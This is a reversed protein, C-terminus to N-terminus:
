GVLKPQTNLEGVLNEILQLTQFYTTIRDIDILGDTIKPMEFIEGEFALSLYIKQGTIFLQLEKNYCEKLKLLTKIVKYNIVKDFENGMNTTCEFTTNFEENTTVAFDFNQKSTQSKINRLGNFTLSDLSFIFIEGHFAESLEATFFLGQFITYWDRREDKEKVYKTHINSTKFEVDGFHGHLLNKSTFSDHKKLAFGSKKYESEDIGKMASYRWKEDIFHFIPKTVNVKYKSIYARMSKLYPFLIKKTYLYLVAGAIFFLIVAHYIEGHELIFRLLKIGGASWMKTLEKLIEIELKTNILMLICPVIIIAGLIGMVTFFVKNILKHTKYIPILSIRAKDLEKLNEKLGNKLFQNLEQKTKM